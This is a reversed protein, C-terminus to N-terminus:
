FDKRIITRVKTWGLGGLRRVLGPRVEAQLAVAGRGRAWEIVQPQFHEWLDMREGGLLGVVLVKKRPYHHFHTTAAAIIRGAVHVVWLQTLGRLLKDYEAALSTEGYSRDIAKKLLGCVGDWIEEVEDTEILTLSPRDM